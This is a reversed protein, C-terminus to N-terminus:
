TRKRKGQARRRARKGKPPESVDHTITQPRPRNQPRPEHGNEVDRMAGAMPSMTFAALVALLEPSRTYGM